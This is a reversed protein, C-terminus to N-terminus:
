ETGNEVLNFFSELSVEDSEDENEFISDFLTILTSSLAEDNFCSKAQQTKYDPYIRYAHNDVVCVKVPIKNPDDTDVIVIGTKKMTISRGEHQYYALRSFLPHKRAEEVDYQSLLIRVSGGRDIFDSLAIVFRQNNSITEDCLSRAVLRIVNRGQEFLKTFIMLSKEDDSTLLEESSKSNIIENLFQVFDENM